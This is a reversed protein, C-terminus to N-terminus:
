SFKLCYKKCLILGCFCLLVAFSDRYWVKYTYLKNSSCWYCEHQDPFAGGCSQSMKPMLIQKCVKRQRQDLRDVSYSHLQLVLECKGGCSVSADKVCVKVHLVDKNTWTLTIFQVMRFMAPNLQTSKSFIGNGVIGTIVHIFMDSLLGPNTLIIVL